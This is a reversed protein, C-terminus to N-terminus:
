NTWQMNSRNEPDFMVPVGQIAEPSGSYFFCRGYTRSPDPQLQHHNGCLDHLRKAASMPKIREGTAEIYWNAAVASPIRLHLLPGVTYGAQRLKYEILDLVTGFTDKETDAVDQRQEILEQLENPNKM